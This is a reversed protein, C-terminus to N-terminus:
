YSRTEHINGIIEHNQAYHHLEEEMREATGRDYVLVFMGQRFKVIANNGCNLIDSEYIDKGNKDKLGTFQMALKEQVYTSDPNYEELFTFVEKKNYNMRKAIFDWFRFKIDRM